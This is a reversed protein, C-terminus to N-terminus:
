MARWYWDLDRESVEAHFAEEEFRRCKVFYDHYRQSLYDPLITAAEFRALAEHWRSPLTVKEDRLVTGEPTMDDPVLKNNIGYHAGAVIAAMVLYPNADAGSVRHEIRMNTADAIPVRLSVGRHNPGWSPTLPVYSGKKFRRYSNANPAFIAMAEAMTAQLGAVAHEFVPSWNNGGGELGFVNAGAADLMSMHSHLGSGSCDGFPKAMFTAVMGHKRAVGKIARKLLMAHDCATVVDDVHTLNVEFQSEGYESLMGEAPINQAKFAAYIDVMFADFDYIDEFGTAQAGTMATWGGPIKAPRLPLNPETLYFELELAVVPNLGMAKLPALAHLLVARPDAIFLSGDKEHQSMIVQATPRTAWPVVSFTGPVPKCMRDPDGDQPGEVVTDVLQGKSDMLATSTPLPIGTTYLKKLGDIPLQKGRMLGPMDPMMCDIVEIDPYAALCARVDDPLNEM